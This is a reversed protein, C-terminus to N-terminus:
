RCTMWWCPRIIGGLVIVVPTGHLYLLSAVPLLSLGLVDGFTQASSTWGYQPHDALRLQVLETDTQELLKHGFGQEQVIDADFGGPSSQWAVLFCGRAGGRLGSRLGGLAVMGSELGQSPHVIRCWQYGLRSHRSDFGTNPIKPYYILTPEAEAVYACGGSSVKKTADALAIM